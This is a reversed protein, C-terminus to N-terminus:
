GEDLLQFKDKGTHSAVLSLADSRRCRVVNRIVVFFRNRIKIASKALGSRRYL